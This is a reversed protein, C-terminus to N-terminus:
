PFYTRVLAFAETGKRKAIPCPPKQVRGHATYRVYEARIKPANESSGVLATPPHQPLFLPFIRKGKVRKRQNEATKLNSDKFFQLKELFRAFIMPERWAVGVIKAPTRKKEQM